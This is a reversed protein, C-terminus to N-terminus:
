KMSLESVIMNGDLDFIKLLIFFWAMQITYVYREKLTKLDGEMKYPVYACLHGQRTTIFVHDEGSIRVGDKNFHTYKSLGQEDWTLKGLAMDSVASKLKCIKYPNLKAVHEKIASHEFDVALVSHAFVNRIIKIIKLENYVAPTILGLYSAMRIKKEFDCLLNDNLFKGVNFDGNIDKLKAMICIEIVRDLYAGGTVV